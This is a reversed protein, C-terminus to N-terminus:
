YAVFLLAGQPHPAGTAQGSPPAGGAFAIFSAALIVKIVSSSFRWHYNDSYTLLSITGQANPQPLYPTGIGGRDPHFFVDASCSTILVRALFCEHLPYYFPIM